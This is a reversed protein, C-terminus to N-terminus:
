ASLEHSLRLCLRCLPHPRRQITIARFIERFPRNKWALYADYRANDAALDLLFTSLQRPESFDAANIYCHEGPAFQDINPAGLYVPVSGVLLPDFFKETVYDHSISNEFALTFKYRSITSLKTKRGKDISFIRNQLVAGYSDVPLYRMLEAVYATRGSQDNWNSAIYVAPAAETKDVAPTRLDAMLEPEAYPLPFDSDLRYTMTYDFQSMFRRDRLQPYNIDSEMSVAVWRQGRRKRFAGLDPASPIHFLVAEAEAYRSRDFTIECCAPCGTLTQPVEIWDPNYFLLLPTAAGPKARALRPVKAAGVWARWRM